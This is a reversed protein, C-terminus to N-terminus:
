NMNKFKELLAEGKKTLKTFGGGGIGGKYSQIIDDGYKFKLFNITKHITAYSCSIKGSVAKVSETKNIGELIEIYRRIYDIM